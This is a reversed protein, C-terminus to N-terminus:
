GSRRRRRMWGTTGALSLLGLTLGVAPLASGTGCSAQVTFAGALRASRGDPLEVVLDYVGPEVGLLGVTCQILNASVVSVNYCNIVSSGKVLKVAAGPLFGTGEVALGLSITLQNGSSPNVSSVSLPQVAPPTRLILGRYGVAWATVGDRSSVDLLDVAVDMPPTEDVWTAGGDVTKLIRYGPSGSAVAWAINKGPMFCGNVECSVDSPKAHFLWSAGGDHTVMVDNSYLVVFALYIINPDLPTGFITPIPSYVIDRGVAVVDHASAAAINVVYENYTGTFVAQWNAGGDTTKIIIPLYPAGLYPPPMPLSPATPTSRNWRESRAGAWAVQRDVAYVSTIEKDTGSPQLHWSTGGDMTKLIRGHSGAAWATEGDVASISTFYYPEGIVYQVTWNKGADVTKAIFNVGTGPEGERGVIWVTEASVAWIDFVHTSGKEYVKEWTQGGDVTRLIVGDGGVWANRSDVASVCRLTADTGSEQRIWPHEGPSQAVAPTLVPGSAVVILPVVLLLVFLACAVTKRPNNLM